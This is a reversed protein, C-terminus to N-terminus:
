PSREPQLRQRLGPVRVAEGAYTHFLPPISKIEPQVVTPMGQVPTAQRRLPGGRAPAPTNQPRIEQRVRQLYLAALQAACHAAEVPVEM